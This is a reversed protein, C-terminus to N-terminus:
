QQTIDAMCRLFSIFDDITKFSDPHLLTYEAMQLARKQLNGLCQKDTIKMLDCTRVHDSTIRTTLSLVAYLCADKFTADYITDATCQKLQWSESQYQQWLQRLQDRYAAYMEFLTNILYTQLGIRDKEPLDDRFCLSLYNIMLSGTFRGLDMGKPGYGSFETDIIVVREHDVMINSAHLDNHILCENCTSYHYGLQRIVTWLHSNRATQQQVSQAEKELPCASAILPNNIFLLDYLRKSEDNKFFTRCQEFCHTTLHLDSTHFYLLALFRGIKQGIDPYTCGDTLGFRLLTLHSLDEMVILGSAEDFYYIEPTIGPCLTNMFTLVAIETKLRTMLVPHHDGASERAARIYPLVQKLIVSQGSDTDIVRYIRNVYGEIATIEKHLDVVQLQHNEPFFHHTEMYHRVTDLSLEIM